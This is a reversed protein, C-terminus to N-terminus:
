EQGTQQSDGRASGLWANASTRAQETSEGLVEVAPVLWVVRNLDLKGARRLQASVNEDVGSLYLRGGVEALEDAYDDLVEILTAGVRTRGRLRLIVVPRKAGEPSPM